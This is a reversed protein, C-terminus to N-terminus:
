DAFSASSHIDFEYAVYPEAGVVWADHGPQVLYAEGPGIEISDAGREIHLQGSLVVGFHQFECLDTGASPKLAESWRWGPELRIRSALHSGLAVVDKTTLPPTHTEDAAEFSKSFLGTM